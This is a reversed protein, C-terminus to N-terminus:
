PHDSYFYEAETSDLIAFVDTEPYGGPWTLYVLVVEGNSLMTVYFDTYREPDVYVDFTTSAGEVTTATFHYTQGQKNQVVTTDRTSSIEQQSTTVFRDDRLVKENDAWQWTQWSVTLGVAASDVIELHDICNAVTKLGYTMFTNQEIVFILDGDRGPANREVVYAKQDKLDILIETGDEYVLKAAIDAPNTTNCVFDGPIGGEFKEGVAFPTLPPAVADDVTGSEASPSWSVVVKYPYFHIWCRFISNAKGLYEDQGTYKCQGDEYGNEDYINMVIYENDYRIRYGNDSIAVTEYEDEDATFGAPGTIDYEFSGATITIQQQDLHEHLYDLAPQVQLPYTPILNFYMGTLLLAVVVASCALFRTLWRVTGWFDFSGEEEGIVPLDNDPAMIPMSEGDDNQNSLRRVFAVILWGFLIGILIAIYPNTFPNM